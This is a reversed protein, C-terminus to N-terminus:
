LDLTLQYQYLLVSLIFVQILKNHQSIQALESHSSPKSLETRSSHSQLQWTGKTQYFDSWLSHLTALTSCRTPEHSKCTPETHEITSNRINTVEFRLIKLRRSTRDQCRWEWTYKNRKSYLAGSFSALDIIIPPPFLLDSHYLCAVPSKSDGHIERMSYSTFKSPLYFPPFYLYYITFHPSLLSHANM